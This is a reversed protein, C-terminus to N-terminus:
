DIRHNMADDDVPEFVVEKTISAANIRGAKQRVAAQYWRSEVGNYGRVYLSDEVAV